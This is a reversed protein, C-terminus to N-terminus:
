RRTRTVEFIQTLERYQLNVLYGSSFLETPIGAISEKDKFVYITLFNHFEM